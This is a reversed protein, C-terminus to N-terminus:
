FALVGTRVLYALRERQEPSLVAHIAALARTVADRLQAAGHVRRECAATAKDGDFTEGLIADAYIMGTCRFTLILAFISVDAAIEVKDRVDVDLNPESGRGILGLKKLSQAFLGQSAPENACIQYRRHWPESRQRFFSRENGGTRPNEDADSRPLRFSCPTLPLLRLHSM